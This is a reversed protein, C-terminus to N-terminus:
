PVICYRSDVEILHEKELNERSLYEKISNINVFPHNKITSHKFISVPRNEKIDELKSVINSIIEKYQPNEERVLQIQIYSGTGIELTREIHKTSSDPINDPKKYGTNIEFWRILEKSFPKIVEKQVDACFGKTQLVSSYAEFTTNSYNRDPISIKRTLEEKKKKPWSIETALGPKSTAEEKLKNIKEILANVKITYGAGQIYEVEDQNFKRSDEARIELFSILNDYVEKWSTRPAAPFSNVKFKEDYDTVKKELFSEKVAEEFPNIVRDKLFALAGELRMKRSFDIRTIRNDKSATEPFNLPRYNFIMERMITTIQFPIYSNNLYLLNM